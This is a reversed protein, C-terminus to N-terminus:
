PLAANLAASQVRVGGRHAAQMAATSPYLWWVNIGPISAACWAACGNVGPCPPLEVFLHPLYGGALTGAAHVQREAHQLPNFLGGFNIADADLLHAQSNGYRYDPLGFLGPATLRVVACCSGDGVGNGPGRIEDFYLICAQALERVIDRNATGAAAAVNSIPM